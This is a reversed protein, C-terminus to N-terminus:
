RSVTGVPSADLQDLPGNSPSTTSPLSTPRPAQSMFPGIADAIPAIAAIWRAPIPSAPGQLEVQDGVLLMGPDVARPDESVFAQEVM